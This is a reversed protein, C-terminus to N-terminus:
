KPLLTEKDSGSGYNEGKLRDLIVQKEEETREPKKRPKIVEIGVESFKQALNGMENCLNCSSYLCAKGCNLRMEAFHPNMGTNPVIHEQGFDVILDNLNGLWQEQKYIEYVVSLRSNNEGGYLECIDIYPEYIEIDEPRVFFKKMPDIIERAEPACQAINPRVRFQVGFKDKIGQLDKMRFGLEEIIYIDTVGMKAFGYVEEMTRPYEMFFFPIEQEKAAEIVDDIRFIQLAINWGDHILMKIQTFLSEKIWDYDLQAQIIIRQKPDFTEEIFPVINNKGSYPLIIEDVEKLYRFKANYEVSFKM